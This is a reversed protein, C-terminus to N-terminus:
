KAAKEFAEKCHSVNYKIEDNLIVTRNLLDNRLLNRNWLLYWNVYKWVQM